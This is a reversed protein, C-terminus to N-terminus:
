SVTPLEPSSVDYVEGERTLLVALVQAKQTNQDADGWRVVRGDALDFEVAGPTSARAAVVEDALEAPLAALVTTVARTVDDAPGPDFLELRPLGDPPEPVTKYPVGAADVLRLGRDGDHYAVARRETVTITVTSPLSREVTATAIDPLTAVREAVADTDLRLLPENEAVEAAALVDREAVTRAGVVEVTSVGLFSTFFLLYGLGVVTVASLAVIRRRQRV